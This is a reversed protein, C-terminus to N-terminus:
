LYILYWQDEYKIAYLKEDEMVLDTPNKSDSGREAIYRDITMECLMATGESIKPLEQKEALEDLMPILSDREQSQGDTDVFAKIDIYTYAYDIGFYDAINDHTSNVIDQDTLEGDYFEDLQYQHYLPFLLKSFSEGDEDQIALYYHRIRDVLYDDLFRNDYCITFSGSRDETVTAGYPMDEQEQIEATSSPEGCATLACGALLVAFAAGIIRTIKM